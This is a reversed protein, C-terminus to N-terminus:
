GGGMGGPLGHEWTPRESWPIPASPEPETKCGLSGLAAALTLGLWLMRAVCQWNSLYSSRDAGRAFAASHSSNKLPMKMRGM